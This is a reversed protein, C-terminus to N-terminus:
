VDINYKSDNIVEILGYNNNKGNKKIIPHTKAKKRINNHLVQRMNM